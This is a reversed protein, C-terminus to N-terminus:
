IVKVTIITQGFLKAKNWRLHNELRTYRYLEVAETRARFLQTTSTVVGFIMRPSQGALMSYTAFLTLPGQIFLPVQSGLGPVVIAPFACDAVQVYGPEDDPAQDQV